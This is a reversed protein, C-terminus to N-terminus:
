SNCSDCVDDTLCKQVKCVELTGLTASLKKANDCIEQFKNPDMSELESRLWYTKPPKPLVDYDVKSPDWPWDSMGNASYFEKNNKYYVHIHVPTYKNEDPYRYAAWIEKFNVEDIKSLLVFKDM